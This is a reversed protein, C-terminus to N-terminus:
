GIPARLNGVALNPRRVRYRTEDAIHDESDSDVDDLDKESRPLVPITRLFHRCAASVFLGPGERRGEAGPVADKLMQRVRKWGDKRSGPRKDAPEWGVGIRRMEGAVSNNPDRPDAVFIASDAPGAKVRGTIEWGRERELVGKAIDKSAMHVGKNPTGNWGYWEQLRILDGRVGGIQRGEWTVPEGSSEAWWGV